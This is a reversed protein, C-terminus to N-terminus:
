VIRELLGITNTAHKKQDHHLVTEINWSQIYEFIATMKQELQKDPVRSLNDVKLYLSSKRPNRNPSWEQIFRKFRSIMTGLANKKTREKDIFILDEDRRTQISKKVLMAVASEDQTVLHLLDVDKTLYLTNEVVDVWILTTEQPLSDIVSDIKSM